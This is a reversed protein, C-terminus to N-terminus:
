KAYRDRERRLRDGLARVDAARIKRWKEKGRQVGPLEGADVMARVVKTSVGLDRLERAARGTTWLEGPDGGAAQEGAHEDAQM